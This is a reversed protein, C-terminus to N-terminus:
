YVFRLGATAGILDNGLSKDAQVFINTYPLNIQVGAFARTLFSAVKGTSDINAEAQVQPDVGGVCTGAGGTQDPNCSLTTPNANLAAGGKAQGFNMDAGFGGYLSLFYLFQVNTSIELPISTTAVDINATPSGTVPGGVTAGGGLDGSVTENITTKFTLETTNKEFGTHLKVGGWRMLSRGSPRILDYSVHFGLSGLDAELTDKNADGMKQDHSYKFFNAYVNLRKAELGLIKGSSIWGLNTGLILGGQLGIGSLESGSSKDKEMDAGVGVGVGILAVEMRSAYDSGVGKGSMVSSNALGEMLRKPTGASPFDKNIDAEASDLATRLASAVAPDLAGENLINIRFLQAKSENSYLGFGLILSLLLVQKM